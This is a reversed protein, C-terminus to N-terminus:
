EAGGETEILSEEQVTGEEDNLELWDQADTPSYFPRDFAVRGEQTYLFGDASNWRYTPWQLDFQTM